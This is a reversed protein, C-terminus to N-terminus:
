CINLLKELLSAWELRLAEMPNTQAMLRCTAVNYGARRRSCVGRSEVGHPVRVGGALARYLHQIRQMQQQLKPASGRKKAATASEEGLLEKVVLM